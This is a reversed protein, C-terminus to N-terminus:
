REAPVQQNKLGQAIDGNEVAWLCLIYLEFKM